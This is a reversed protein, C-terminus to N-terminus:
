ETRLAVAARTRAAARAPFYAILNVAIIAAPILLLVALAPVPVVAVVGLGDAVQRWVLSGVLFGFPIGIVLGVTALTTAQWAVSGRIQRRDFGLTKLVALDRRRRRVSTVLAHGVAVLALFALLAALTVPLWNVNRLRDVEVPVTSGFPREVDPIQAVRREVTATDASQKARVAIYPTGFRPNDSRLVREFGASTMLAGSALPQASDFKPFAAQGVITYRAKGDPGEGSVTDGISKGLADLTAAGFAVESARRPRRGAVIEPDISGRYPTTGWGIVPSGDFQVNATTLVEVADIGPDHSLPSDPALVNPSDIQAAFDWKWGHLAKATVLHDLSSAFVLVAVVGLVGFVAGFVASRVPVRTSGRGPELAMRVGTTVVPTVGARSTADVM